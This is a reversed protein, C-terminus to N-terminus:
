NGRYVNVAIELRETSNLKTDSV